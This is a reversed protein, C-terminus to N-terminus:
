VDIFQTRKINGCELTLRLIPEYRMKVKTGNSLQSVRSGLYVRLGTGLVRSMSHCVPKSDLRWVM